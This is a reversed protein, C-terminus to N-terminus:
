KNVDRQQRCPTTARENEIWKSLPSVDLEMKDNFSVNKTEAGRKIM